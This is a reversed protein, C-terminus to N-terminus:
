EKTRFSLDHSSYTIELQTEGPIIKARDIIERPLILKKGQIRTEWLKRFFERERSYYSRLSEGEERRIQMQAQRSPFINIEKSIENYHAFYKTGKITEVDVRGQKDVKAYKTM